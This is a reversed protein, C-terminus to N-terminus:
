KNETLSAVLQEKTIDAIACCITSDTIWIALSCDPKGNEFYWGTRQLESMVEHPLQLGGPTFSDHFKIQYLYIVDNKHQYLLHAIRENAYESCRGGM